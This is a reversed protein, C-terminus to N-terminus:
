DYDFDNKLRPGSSLSRLNNSIKSLKVALCKMDEARATTAHPYDDM